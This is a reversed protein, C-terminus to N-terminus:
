KVVRDKLWMFLECFSVVLAVPAVPLVEFLLYLSSSMKDHGPDTNKFPLFKISPSSRYSLLYSSQSSKWFFQTRNGAGVVIQFALGLSDVSLKQGGPCMIGLCINM